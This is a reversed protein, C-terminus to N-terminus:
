QAPRSTNTTSLSLLYADLAFAWDGRARLIAEIADRVAGDGGARPTVVHAADRVDTAANAPALAVGAARLAPLDNLDDGMYAVAPLPLQLRVALAVLAAAKDRVGQFLLDVGLERARREVLPSTRGTMWAVRLGVFGALVIGLGDHIHFRKSERGADDFVVGGDTLTGDVDLVLLRIRALDATPVNENPTM